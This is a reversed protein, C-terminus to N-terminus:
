PASPAPSTQPKAPPPTRPLFRIVAAAIFCGAALTLAATAPSAWAALAESAAIRVDAHPDKQASERLLAM